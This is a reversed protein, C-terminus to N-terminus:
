YGLGGRPRRQMLESSQPSGSNSSLLSPIPPPNTFSALKAWDASTTKLMQHGVASGTQPLYPRAGKERQEVSTGGLVVEEM